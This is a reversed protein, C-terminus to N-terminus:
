RYFGSGGGYGFKYNLGLRIVDVHNNDNVFNAGCTAGPGGVGCAINVQNTDGNRFDYHLYEARAIWNTTIMWEYGAGIVWGSKTASFSAASSESFTGAATDTSLLLDTNRKEWAGGGTIYLLSPGWSYGLRGRVTALWEVDHHVMFGNTATGGSGLLPDAFVAQSSKNLGAGDFDAEVGLVVAGIQYNYGIQGGFVPGNAKEDFVAGSLVPVASVFNQFPASTSSTKSWGYGGNFGIYLGTWSALPVAAPPRYVPRAAIDAAMAPGAILSTFAVGTLLLKKM